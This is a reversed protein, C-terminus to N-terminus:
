AAAAGGMERTRTAEFPYTRSLSLLRPPIAIAIAVASGVMMSPRWVLLAFVTPRIKPQNKRAVNKVDIGAYNM